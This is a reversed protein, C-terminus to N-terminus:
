RPNDAEDKSLNAIDHALTEITAKLYGIQFYVDDMPADDTDTISHGDNIRAVVDLARAAHVRAIDAFFANM